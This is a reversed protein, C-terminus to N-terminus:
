KKKGFMKKELDPGFENVLEDIMSFPISMAVRSFTAGVGRDEEPYYANSLGSTAISGLIGSWNFARGGSDKHTLVPRILAHGVRRKFSGSGAGLRHYRPDQHLVSPFLFTGFFGAATEDALGAGFRKGYGAAGQGYGPFDNDAQALGAEFAVWGITFPDTKDKVFLRWKGHATLPRASKSDAVTYTPLIWFLRPHEEEPKQSKAPPDQQAVPASQKRTVAQTSGPQTGVSEQARSVNASLFLLPIFFFLSVRLEWAFSNSSENSRVGRARKEGSGQVYIHLVSQPQKAEVGSFAMTAVVRWFEPELASEMRETSLNSTNGIRRVNLPSRTSVM